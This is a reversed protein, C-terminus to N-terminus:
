QAAFTYVFEGDLETLEILGLKEMQKQMQPFDKYSSGDIVIYQVKLSQLLELSATDPFKELIPQSTQYQEPQNANFFGGTFPKNYFMSYYVQAQDSSHSFPMQIVAGDGPQEALWLDVPRPHPQILINEYSGPYFEFLVVLVLLVTLISQKIHTLRKSMETLGIGALVPVFIIVFIGFRMIARMKDFFPLHTFLWYAPMHIATEAKGFLPQLIAPIQWIVEQNNWHLNIGLALIFSVCIVVFASWIFWRHESKKNKILAMLSLVLGVLSIYFSGEIWLSRDFHQSVWAGFLFHDSSPLFFDTPSASYMNAYDVSRSAIGGASSLTIFPRLAYYFFPLVLIGALFLQFWFVKNTLPKFRTFLLYVLGFIGAMLLTMYLYYMSTFAIAGLSFATLVVFTWNIKKAPRLLTSLGWFFLPLWETGSLNLHGALFHAMRYPSFAFLTGALIGALRSHTLSRVWLYMFFGSLVFTILMAINYGAVPGFFYSFPVGPLVSALATDTTSLNWGQPYNMLPNFFPHGGGELFAKQYWRVLWVFYINDGMRGLVSTGLTFAVPYTMFATAACFYCFVFFTHFKNLFAKM